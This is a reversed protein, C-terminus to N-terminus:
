FNTDTSESTNSEQLWHLWSFTNKTEEPLIVAMGITQVLKIQTLRNEMLEMANEAKIVLLYDAKPRLKVLNTADCILWYGAEENKASYHFCLNTSINKKVTMELPNELLWFTSSFADDLLWALREPKETTYLVAVCFDSKDTPFAIQEKKAM